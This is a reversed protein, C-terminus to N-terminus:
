MSQFLQTVKDKTLVEKFDEGLANTLPKEHIITSEYLQKYQESNLNHCIGRPIEIGQKEVMNWFEKYENPYFEEMARMTICNAKCHHVGLVVSLGASFPHLVGVYSTAIACGGLYSAVMMKSRNEDSMMDDSLFVERCLKITQASYADGIANRYSGNLSEVCHIYADMGSYFYQDQPVSKTLTPDLILQDYVTFDSNMGLKLRTKKNIMVCTRTAEAGTGSLTPIAIKFVGPKKVLDWGQYDEAKGGNSLLNSIAKAVDMTTGGGMGVVVAPDTLGKELLISLLEDVYDTSPEAQTSVFVLEDEQKIGLMNLIDQKDQFFDDVLFIAKQNNNVRKKAVLRPLEKIAGSGITYRLVNRVHNVGTDLKKVM